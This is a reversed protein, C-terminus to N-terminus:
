LPGVSHVTLSQKGQLIFSGPLAGPMLTFPEPEDAPYPVAALQKGNPQYIVIKRPWTIVLYNSDSFGYRPGPVRVDTSWVWDGDDAFATRDPTGVLVSGSSHVVLTISFPYVSGLEMEYLEKAKGGDFRLVLLTDQDGRLNHLAVVKGDESIAATKYFRPTKDDYQFAIEGQQNLGFVGGSGFLFISIPARSAFKFDSLFNGSIHKAGILNGSPDLVDVRNGDGTLLYVSKGAPDTIPYAPFPKKWLLEGQESYFALEKGVRGFIFYGQGHLPAFTLENADLEKIRDMFVIAGHDGHPTMVAHFPRVGQTAWNSPMPTSQLKGNEPFGIYWNFQTTISFPLTRAPFRFIVPGLM